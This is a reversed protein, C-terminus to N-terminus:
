CRSTGALSTTTACVRRRLRTVDPAPAVDDLTSFLEYDRGNTMLVPDHGLAQWKRALVPSVSVVVDADRAIRREAAGVWRTSVGQLRAGAVFDDSALHVKLTEGLAGFVPFHPPIQVVVRVDGGLAHV